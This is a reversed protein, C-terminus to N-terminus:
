TPTRVDAIGCARVVTPVDHAVRSLEDARIRDWSRDGPTLCRGAGSATTGPDEREFRVMSM